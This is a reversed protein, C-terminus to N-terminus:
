SSSSGGDGGGSGGGSGGSGGSSVGSGAAARRAATRKAAAAQEAKKRERELRAKEKKAAELQHQRKLKAVQRLHKRRQEVNWDHETKWDFWNRFSTGAWVDQTDPAAVEDQDSATSSQSFGIWGTLTGTVVVGGALTLAFHRRTKAVLDDRSTPDADM